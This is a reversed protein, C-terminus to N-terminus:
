LAQYVMFITALIFLALIIPDPMMINVISGISAGVIASPLMLTCVNYDVLIGKGNKRPHAERSNTLFRVVSSWPTAFNAIAVANKTDFGYLGM